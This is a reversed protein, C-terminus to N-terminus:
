FSMSFGTGGKSHSHQNDNATTGSTGTTAQGPTDVIAYSVINFTAIMGSSAHDAVQCQLTWVGTYSPKFDVQTVVSPVVAVTDTRHGYQLGTIGHWYPSHYDSIDGLAAVYFRVNENLSMTLNAINDFM